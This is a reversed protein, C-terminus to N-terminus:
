GSIKREIVVCMDGVNKFRMVEKLAFKIGFHDEVAALLITHNLSDWEPIDKAATTESISIDPDKFVQAFVSQVRRLIDQQTSM